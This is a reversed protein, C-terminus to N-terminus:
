NVLNKAQYIYCCHTSLNIKKHVITKKKKKIPKICLDTVSQGSEEYSVYCLVSGGDVGGGDSDGGGTTGRIWAM